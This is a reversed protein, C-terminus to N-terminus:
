FTCLAFTKTFFNLGHVRSVFEETGALACLNGPVHLQLMDQKM